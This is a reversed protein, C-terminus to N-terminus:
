ANLFARGVAKCLSKREQRKDRDREKLTCFYVICRTHRVRGTRCNRSAGASVAAGDVHGAATARRSDTSGAGARVPRNRRRSPRCERESSWKRRLVLQATHGACLLAALRGCRQAVGGTARGGHTAVTPALPTGAWWRGRGARGLAAVVQARARWPRARGRSVTLPRRGHPWQRLRVAGAAETTLGRRALPPM